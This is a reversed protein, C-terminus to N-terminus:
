TFAAAIGVSSILRDRFDDLSESHPVLLDRLNYFRNTTPSKEHATALDLEAVNYITWFEVFGRQKASQHSKEAEGLRNWINSQDGGGKIEIAVINRRSKKSTEEFVSIDPDTRLSESQRAAM